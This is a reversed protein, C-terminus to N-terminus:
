ESKIEQRTIPDIQIARARVSMYPGNKVATDMKVKGTKLNMEMSIGWSGYGSYKTKQMGPFADLIANYFGEAMGIGKGIIPLYKFAGASAKMFADAESAGIVGGTYAYTFTSDKKETLIADETRLGRQGAFVTETKRIRSRLTERVDENGPIMRSIEKTERGQHTKGGLYNWKAVDQKSMNWEKAGDECTMTILIERGANETYFYRNLSWVISNGDIFNNSTEDLVTYDIYVSLRYTKEKKLGLADYGPSNECFSYVNM